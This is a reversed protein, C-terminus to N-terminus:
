SRNSCQLSEHLCKAKLEGITFIAVCVCKSFCEKEEWFVSEDALM